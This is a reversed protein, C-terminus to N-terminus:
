DQLDDPTPPLGPCMERYDIHPSVWKTWHAKSMTRTLKACLADAPAIKQPYPNPWIRVTGDASGSIILAGDPSVAVSVVQAQHGSFTHQNGYTASWLQVDYPDFSGAVIRDQSPKTSQSSFALGMVADGIQAPDGLPTGTKVDWRQIVGVAPEQKETGWDTSGSALRQGDPSFAVGLIEGPHGAALHTQESFSKPLQAAADAEWMEHGTLDWLRLIGAVGGSALRDGRPNFRLDFIIANDKNELATPKEPQSSLDWLTIQGDIGASALLSAVPSMAIATVPRGTDIERVGGTRSDWLRIKGDASGSAVVDGTRDFAVRSIVGVPGPMQGVETATYADWRRVTGDVGGSALHRSDPGIAVSTVSGDHGSLPGKYPQGVVGNWFRLAHENGGSVIENGVIAVSLVLGQHGILPAGIRKGGLVDWLRLTKDNSGSVLRSGDASFAVSTV